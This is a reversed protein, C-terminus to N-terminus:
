MSNHMGTFGRSRYSGGLSYRRIALHCEEDQKRFNTKEYDVQSM